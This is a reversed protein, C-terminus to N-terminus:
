FMIQNIEKGKSPTFLNYIYVSFLCAYCILTRWILLEDDICGCYGVSELTYFHNKTLTYTIAPMIHVKKMQCCLWYYVAMLITISYWCKIPQEVMVFKNSSSPTGSLRLFTHRSFRSVTYLWKRLSM